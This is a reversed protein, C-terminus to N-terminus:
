RGSRRTSGPRPLPGRTPRLPTWCCPRWPLLRCPWRTPRRCRCPWTRPSSLFQSLFNIIFFHFLFFHLCHLAETVSPVIKKKERRWPGSERWPCRESHLVAWPRRSRLGCRGWRTLAPSCSRYPGPSRGRPLNYEWVEKKKKVGPNRLRPHVVKSSDMLSQCNGAGNGQGTFAEM